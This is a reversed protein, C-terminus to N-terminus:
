KVSKGRRDGDRVSTVLFVFVYRIGQFLVRTYPERSQSTHRRILMKKVLNDM